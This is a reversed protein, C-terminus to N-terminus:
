ESARNLAPLDGAVVPASRTNILLYTLQQKLKPTHFFSLPPPSPPLQLPLTSEIPKTLFGRPYLRQGRFCCMSSSVELSYHQNQSPQINFLHSHLTVWYSERSSLFLFAAQQLLVNINANGFLLSFRISYPSHFTSEGSRM